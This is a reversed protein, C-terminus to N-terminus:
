EFQCNAAPTFGAAKAEIISAFFIKNSEKIQSAGPCDLLHYRAGSKSAVLFFDSKNMEDRRNETNKENNIIEVGAPKNQAMDKNTISARGLGFSAIAVFIILISVYIAEDEIFSKLKELM